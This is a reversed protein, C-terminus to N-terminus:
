GTQIYFSRAHLALIFVGVPLPASQIHTWSAAAYRGNPMRNAQATCAQLLLQFYWQSCHANLTTGKSSFREEM